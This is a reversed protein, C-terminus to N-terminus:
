QKIFKATQLDKETQLHLFYMGQPLASVDLQINHTNNSLKENLVERGLYDFVALSQVQLEKSWEVTVSNGAPNPYVRLSETQMKSENIGVGILPGGGNTTKYIYQYRGVAYCVSDTPCHISFIDPYYNYINKGILEQPYWNDGGNETKFIYRLHQNPTGGFYGENKNLMQITNVFRINPYDNNEWTDGGDKTRSIIGFNFSPYGYDFGDKGHSGIFGFNENVFSVCVYSNYQPYNEHPFTSVIGWTNGGDTTKCGFNTYGISDNPFSFSLSGGCVSDTVWSIGGDTTRAVLSGVMNAHCIFGTDNNMFYVDNMVAPPNGMYGIANINSWTWTNGGDTTKYFKDKSGVAYCTSDNPCHIANFRHQIQLTNYFWTTDWSIGGNHTRLIVSPSYTYGQIYPSGVVFGTDKNLFFVDEWGGTNPITDDRSGIMYWQAKAQLCFGALLLLLLNVKSSNVFNKM